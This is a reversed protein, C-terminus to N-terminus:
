SLGQVEKQKRLCVRGRTVHGGSEQEGGIVPARPRWLGAGESFNARELFAPGPAEMKGLQGIFPSNAAAPNTCSGIWLPSSSYGHKHLASTGRSPEATSM